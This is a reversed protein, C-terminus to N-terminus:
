AGAKAQKSDYSEGYIAPVKSGMPRLFMTLQGRHHISHNLAIQLFNVAAFKFIGRFDVVNILADASVAAVQDLDAAATEAYWRAVAASNELHAPRGPATVDFKGTVVLQLFRHEAGAIHWALDLATMGVPDMKFDGKDIPIAEIVRQTLPQESKYSRVASDRLLLAHEPQLPM